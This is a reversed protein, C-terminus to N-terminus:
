LKRKINYMWQSRKEPGVGVVLPATYLRLRLVYDRPMYHTETDLDSRCGMTRFIYHSYM